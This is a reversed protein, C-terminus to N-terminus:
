LVFNLLRGAVYVVRKPSRDALYKAVNPQAMAIECVIDEPADAPVRVRGRMKGAVQVAIEVEDEVLLAPDAEPWPEYAITEGHGLRQWLEEALHPALPSLLKLFAEGLERPMPGDKEIDRVFVMLQSIATNFSLSEFDRTAAEVTRALLRQQGDSGKGDALARPQEGAEADETFLRYGRQLFRFVGPMGDISWPAAKELPGIFMEYLRMADAGYEAIVDDPNVVNGRSKSMKEIVEELVVGHEPSLARGDQWRVDDPTVWEEFLETGSGVHVPTEGEYRV